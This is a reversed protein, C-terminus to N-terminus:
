PASKSGWRMGLGSRRASCDRVRAVGDPIELALAKAGAAFRALHEDLRFVRAGYVRIGEFIGDGYLLGHDTVPIRAESADVVRGDIWVVTRSDGAQSM